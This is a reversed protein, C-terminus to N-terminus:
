APENAADLFGEAIKRHTGERGELAEKESMGEPGNLRNALARQASGPSDFIPLKIKQAGEFIPSPKHQLDFRREALQGSIVAVSKELEAVREKSESLQQEARQLHLELQKIRAESSKPDMGNEKWTIAYIRKWYEEARELQFGRVQKYLERTLYVTAVHAAEAVPNCDLWLKYGLGRAVSWFRYDSGFTGYDGKTLEPLPGLAMPPLGPPGAAQVAEVPARKILSAGFGATTVEILGDDPIEWMPLYPWKGDQLTTAISIMPDFRRRFYHGSVMDLDHSRLRELIGPKFVMDVDCLFLADFERRALFEACLDSRNVDGRGKWELKREDGPRLEIELFSQASGIHGQESTVGGVFVRM